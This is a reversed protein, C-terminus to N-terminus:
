RGHAGRGLREEDRLQDLGVLRGTRTASALPSITPLASTMVSRSTLERWTPTREIVTASPQRSTPSPVASHGGGLVPDAVAAQAGPASRRGPCRARSRPRRGAGPEHALSQAPALEALRRCTGRRAASPTTGRPPAASRQSAPSPSAMVPRGPAGRGPRTRPWTARASPARRATGRRSSSRGAREVQQGHVGVRRAVHVDTM